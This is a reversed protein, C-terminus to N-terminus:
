ILLILLAYSQHAIALTSWLAEWVNSGHDSPPDDVPLVNEPRSSKKAREGLAIRLVFFSMMVSSHTQTPSVDSMVTRRDAM